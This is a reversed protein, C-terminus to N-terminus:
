NHDFWQKIRDILRNGQEPKEFNELREIIKALITDEGDGRFEKGTLLPLAQDVSEVTWIHFKNEKIADVLEDKLVLHKLNTLPLIVGQGGTLGQHACVNYFGEIKENLGGVAQVRGFQDVAGTVAIQQNIPVESLASLFSCLQALSASDGDTECYSQEFVISASYPLPEELDLARSVFAQMIMMGKAHINGALDAKREVDLIDGDGFHMVCSIRAPEGYSTPHGAIDVVTLGNVQGIQEGETEIVVQGDLIDELARKPLYSESFYKSALAAKIHVGEIIGSDSEIAAESILRNHWLPSLPFFQQDECERAGARLLEQIGSPSLSPLSYLSILYKVYGLYKELSGNDIRCEPELESFMCFDSGMDADMYDLDGMQTRDGLVILKVDVIREPTENPLYKSACPVLSFAEGLLASKLKLWSSPNALLLNASVLLYGGHAQYLLGENVRSIEGNISEFSGFIAKPDVTETKLVPKCDFDGSQQLEQFSRVLIQRYIANDPGNVLLVRTLNSLKDFRALASSFRPQMTLFSRSDLTEFQKFLSKYNDYQPTAKQWTQQM